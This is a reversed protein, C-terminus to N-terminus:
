NVKGMQYMDRVRNINGQMIFLYAQPNQTTYGAKAMELIQQEPTPATFVKAYRSNGQLLRVFSQFAEKATPFKAFEDKVSIRKGKVIETTDMLVSPYNQLKKVGGFNNHRFALESKGYTSEGMKQAAIASVFLNTGKLAAILDAGYKSMFYRVKVRPPVYDDFWKKEMPDIYSILQANNMKNYEAESIRQYSM